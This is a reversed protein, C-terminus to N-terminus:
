DLVENKRLLRRTIKRKIRGRKRTKLNTFSHTRLFILKRVSLLKGFSNLSSDDYLESNKPVRYPIISPTLLLKYLESFMPSSRNIILNVNKISSALLIKRLLKVMLAKFLKSKRLSKRNSFFKLFLGSFLSIYNYYRDLDNRITIFMKNKFTFTWYLNFTPVFPKHFVKNFKKYLGLLIPLSIISYLNLYGLTAKKLFVKDNKWLGWSYNFSLLANFYSIFNDSINNLMNLRALRLKLSYPVKKKTFNNLSNKNFIRSLSNYYVNLTSKDSFFSPLYKLKFQTTLRTYYPTLTPTSRRNEPSSNRKLYLPNHNSDKSFFFNFSISLDLRKLNKSLKSQRAQYM